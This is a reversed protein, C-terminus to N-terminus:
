QFGCLQPGCGRPPNAQTKKPGTKTRKPGKPAAGKPGQPGM